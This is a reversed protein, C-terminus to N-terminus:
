EWRTIMSRGFPGKREPRFDLFGVRSIAAEVIDRAQKESLLVDDWELTFSIAWEDLRPRHRIIRGKTTPNVIPRSDITYTKTGLLLYEPTVMMCAAAQKQLSARGKGKCFTAGNVFCRLVAVAPIYLEGLSGDSTPVRYASIEAQEEKTKKEFGEIPELPFRHMLIPTISKLAISKSTVM